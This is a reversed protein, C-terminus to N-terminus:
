NPGDFKKKRPRGCMDREDKRTGEKDRTRRTSEQLKPTETKRSSRVRTDVANWTKNKGERESVRM